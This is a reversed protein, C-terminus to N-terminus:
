LPFGQAQPQPQPQMPQEPMPIGMAEPPMPAAAMPAPAAGQGTAQALLADATDVAPEAQLMAMALELAARQDALADSTMGKLAKEIESRVKDTQAQERAAKAKTLAAKAEADEIQAMAARQEMEAQAAKAEERAMKEPDQAEPDADPDEMGTIQRIRKVIEEGEPVDMMKVLLDLLNLAVQPAVPAIQSMLEMLQQVQAQRITANWDEESIIFDAKSRIIDNEPLGDNITVYDPRGARNTIRFTKQESMFQETLSLLKSGHYQRALRLNDFLPATALAGQEQRAVIAKGSTANTTRGMSEDTVGSLSQIMSQELEMLSIHSAALERDASIELSKGQKKVIISDPRALEEAFEDLDDVAGEDMIVKNTNLIYQAKSFRKNIDAQADRMARVIGYPTGDSAKRYGWIPTLPYRNHRYPSPAMFLMGGTTMIAVYMRFTVKEVIKAQGAEVQAAHGRSYEDYIEGSFDGGSIKREMQPVRFWAEILRLRSRSAAPSDLNSYSGAEMADERSDMPKDGMGDLGSGIIESSRQALEITTKRKPFMAIADDVDAWKTRFLYRGDNLDMETAASDFLVNRWSEYREYIPEGEDDGQVGCELWGVGAKTADAFARSNHFESLNVDGLYKLLQSKREAAKADEAERPLIKWDTRGRRETGLIWNISQSIVNFVMPTQGRARLIAIDEPTWQDGDYFSEDTESEKRAIAQVDLERIYHGILKSHLDLARPSDLEDRIAKEVDGLLATSPVAFREVASGRKSEGPTAGGMVDSM